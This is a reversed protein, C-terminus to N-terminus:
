HKWPRLRYGTAGSRPFILQVAERDMLNSQEPLFRLVLTVVDLKGDGDIDAVLLSNEGVGPGIVHMTWTDTIPNGGQGRPNQFWVIEPNSGSPGFSCVIDVAGDGNVDVALM